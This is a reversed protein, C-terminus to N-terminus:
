FTMVRGLVSRSGGMHAQWYRYSLLAVPEHGPEVDSDTSARGLIPKVGLVDFTNATIYNGRVREPEPGGSLTVYTITSATIGSFINTNREIDLFQQPTYVNWYCRPYKSSCLKPTALTHVDKYPFPDVLVGYAVSFVAVTAGVGLALTLVATIAFWPNRKLQRFAQRLDQLLIRMESGALPPM